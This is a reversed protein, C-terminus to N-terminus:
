NHPVCLADFDEQLGPLSLKDTELQHQASELAQTLSALIEPDPNKSLEEKRISAELRDIREPLKEMETETDEIMKKLRRCFAPATAAIAEHVDAM